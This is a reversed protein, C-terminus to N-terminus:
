LSQLILLFMGYLNEFSVTYRQLKYEPVNLSRNEKNAPNCKVKLFKFTHCNPFFTFIFLLISSEKWFKGNTQKHMLIIETTLMNYLKVYSESVFYSKM